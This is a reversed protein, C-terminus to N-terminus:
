QVCWKMRAGNWQFKVFDYWLIQIIIQILMATNVFVIYYQLKCRFFLSKVVLQCMTLVCVTFLVLNLVQQVDSQFWVNIQYLITCYLYVTYRHKIDFLFLYHWLSPHKKNSIRWTYVHLRQDPAATTMAAIGVKLGICRIQVINFWHRKMNVYMFEIDEPNKSLVNTIAGQVEWYLTSVSWLLWLIILVTRGLLM